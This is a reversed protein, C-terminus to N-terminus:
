RGNPFEEYGTLMVFNMFVQPPFTNVQWEAWNRNTPDDAMGATPVVRHSTIVIMPGVEGSPDDDLEVEISQLGSATQVAHELM